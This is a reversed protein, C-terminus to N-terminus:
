DFFLKIPEFKITNLNQILQNVRISQDHNDLRQYVQALETLFPIDSREAGKVLLDLDPFVQEGTKQYYWSMLANEIPQSAEEELGCECLMVAQEMRYFHEKTPERYCLLDYYIGFQSVLLKFNESEESTYRSLNPRKGSVFLHHADSLIGVVTAIYYAIIDQVDLLNKSQVDFSELNLHFCSDEQEPLLNWVTIAPHVRQGGQVMGHILIIPLEALAASIVAIDRDTQRLPRKFYGDCKVVGDFWQTKQWATNIAVRFDHPSAGDDNARYNIKNDWFPAILVLPKRNSEYIGRLLRAADESTDLFPSNEEFKQLRRNIVTTQIAYHSRCQEIEKAHEHALLRLRLDRYLQLESSWTTERLRLIHAIGQEEIRNQHGREQAAADLDAKFAQERLRASHTQEQEHLRYHHGREQAQRDLVKTLAIERCRHWSAQAQEELRYEHGQTLEELRNTHNYNQLYIQRQTAEYSEPKRDARRLFFDLVSKVAAAGSSILTLQGFATNNNQNLM